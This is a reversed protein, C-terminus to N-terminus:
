EDTGPIAVLCAVALAIAGRATPFALALGYTLAATVGCRIVTIKSTALLAALGIFLVPAIQQAVSAVDGTGGVVVGVLTGAFWSLYFFVGTTLLTSRAAGPDALALAAAEDVMWWALGLRRPLPADISPRLAAGLIVHRANLLAATTLIAAWSAGALLLGLLAFQVSGSFIVASSLLTGTAGLPDRAGAGYIAGYAAITLALPVARAFTRRGPDSPSEAPVRHLSAVRQAVPSCQM